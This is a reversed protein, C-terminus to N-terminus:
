KASRIKGLADFLEDFGSSEGAGEPGVSCDVTYDDGRVPFCAPDVAVIKVFKVSRDHGAPTEINEFGLGDVTATTRCRTGEREVQLDLAGLRVKMTAVGRDADLQFRDIEGTASARFSGGQGSADLSGDFRPHTGDEGLGITLTTKMDAGPGAHMECSIVYGTGGGGTESSNTGDPGPAPESGDTSEAPEPATAPAVRYITRTECALLGVVAVLAGM